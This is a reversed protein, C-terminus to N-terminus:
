DSASDFRVFQSVPPSVDAQWRKAEYAEMVHLLCDLEEEESADCRVQLESARKVLLLFMADTETWPFQM